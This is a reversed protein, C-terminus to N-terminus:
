KFASIDWLTEGDHSAIYNIIEQPDETYGALQGAYNFEDGRMVTGMNDELEYSALQGAMALRILDTAGLLRQREGDDGDNQANPDYWQGSIYGQNNVHALGADFPGGGRVSDRLRDNFSGIGTGAVNAQTAQIFRRDDGIDGFNWGEGYVYIASGDVGDNTLTLSALANRVKVMTGRSHFGMLDFRFGDVKYERALRVSLDVVLKEMM